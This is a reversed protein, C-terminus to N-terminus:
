RKETGDFMRLGFQGDMTQYKLNYLIGLSRMPKKGFFGTGGIILLSLEKKV